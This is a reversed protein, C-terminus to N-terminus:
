TREDSRPPLAAGVQEKLVPLLEAEFWPNKKVWGTNRWSPHPLPFIRPAHARWNAVTETVSTKKRPGLYWNQAYGGVLLVLEPAPLAEMIRGHWTARCLPPPPLDASKGDYGPFCFAMPLVSITARDYFQDRTIGMWKRLRDGSPDDFPKGSKHVRLGPAQGAVLIRAGQGIWFVPRPSHATATAAFRDGCLRCTEIESRLDSWLSPM